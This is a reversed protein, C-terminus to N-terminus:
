LDRIMDHLDIPYKRSSKKKKKKKERVRRTEKSVIM